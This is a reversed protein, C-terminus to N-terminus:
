REEIWAEGVQAEGPLWEPGKPAINPKPPGSLAGAKAQKAPAGAM